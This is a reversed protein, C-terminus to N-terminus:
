IRMKLLQRRKGLIFQINQKPIDLSDAFFSVFLIFRFPCSSYSLLLCDLIFITPAQIHTKTTLSSDQVNYSSRQTHASIYNQWKPPLPLFITLGLGAQAMCLSASNFFGFFWFFFVM